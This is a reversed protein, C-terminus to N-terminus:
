FQTYLMQQLARNDANRDEVLKEAYADLEVRKSSKAVAEDQDNTAVEFLPGIRVPQFKDKPESGPPPVAQAALPTIPQAPINRSLDAAEAPAIQQIGPVM